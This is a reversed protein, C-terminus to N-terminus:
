LILHLVCPKAVYLGGGVQIVRNIFYVVMRCNEQVWNGYAEGQNADPIYKALHNLVAMAHPGFGVATRISLVPDDIKGLESFVPIYVAAFSVSLNQKFKSRISPDAHHSHENLQQLNIRICDAM